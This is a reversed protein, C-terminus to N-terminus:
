GNVIDVREAILLDQLGLLYNITPYESKFDAGMGERIQHRCRCEARAGAMAEMAIGCTQLMLDKYNTDQTNTIMELFPTIGLDKYYAKGVSAEVPSKVLLSQFTM